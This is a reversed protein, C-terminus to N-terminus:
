QLRGKCNHAYAARVGEPHIMVVEAWHNLMTCSKHYYKKDQRGRNPDFLVLHCEDPNDAPAAYAVIRHLCAELNLSPVTLLHYMGYMLAGKTSPSWYGYLHKNLFAEEDSPYLGEGGTEKIVDEIAVGTVMSLCAQMCTVDTPQRVLQILCPNQVITCDTAATENNM